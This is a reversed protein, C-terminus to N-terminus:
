SIADAPPNHVWFQYMNAFTAPNDQEFIHWQQLNQAAPDDPFRQKYAQLVAGQIEFGLFILAHTRLFADIQPLTVRHEQVHFLLDRCSSTSFFDPSNLIGSCASSADSNMLEQRYRRIEETTSGYGREAIATRASVIETRALESYLGIKMFGGPRLRSLLTQWGAWPDALHHLVGSSEIVDFHRDLTDLKLLDAQAYKIANLGMEQTKRMAYALSSRSLDIALVRAGSIRQAHSISQLGTGCGAILVDISQQPRHFVAMPFLNSLYGALSRAKGAPATRIWRPYPNEEYQTSVQRSTEDALPTLTPLIARLRQEEAPETIQQTLVAKVAQPWDHGSLQDALPLTGLPMYAALTLLVLTAVPTTNKLSQVVAERLNEVERIEEASCFFVYENIFCQRALASYFTIATDTPPLNCNKLLASRATTLLREMAVDCVPAAELLACLLQDSALANLNQPDFLERGPPLPFQTLCAAIFPTHRVLDTCVRALEGTRGWPETLARLLFPRLVADDHTFRQDKVCSVFVSRAIDTENRHLSQMITDLALASQGQADLLLALNNLADDYDPMIQLARRYSAAGEDLRNFHFYITGLLHHADAYEPNITLAQLCSAQAENLKGQDKFAVGLNYHAVANHPNLQLARLISAAADDPQNRELLLAGLNSHAKAYDPNAKIARRYHMEAEDLKGQSQLAAGLNSHAGASAPNLKLARQYSSCAETHRGLEHLTIGLNNHAETDNPLRATAKQMPILADEIRNMQLYATGLAKWGIGHQPYRETLAQALRVAEAFQGQNFLATLAHVEQQSPNKPTANKNLRKQARNKVVPPAPKDDPNGILKVALQETETGQLGQQRALALLQQAEATQGARHLADIYSLWYQSRAPDIELAALFYPLAAAPQGAQVSLCGLNHNAAAHHPDAQLVALYLTKAEAYQGAQHHAVAQQFSQEASLSPQAPLIDTM